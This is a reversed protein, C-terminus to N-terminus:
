RRRRGWATGPPHRGTRRRAERSPTRDQAAHLECRLRNECRPGADEQGAPHRSDPLAPIGPKEEIEGASQLGAWDFFYSWVRHYTVVERGRYPALREEWGKIKGSLRDAFAKANARYVGAGGADLRGLREALAEAVRVGNRPDLTYHPNGEPHIDGQARPFSALPCRLCGASRRRRMSSGRVERGSAPIGPGKSCCPFGASRWSWATTCWFVPGGPIEAFPLTQGSRLAPGPRGPGRYPRAGPGRRGSEPDRRLGPPHRRGQDSGRRSVRVVPGGGLDLDMCTTKAIDAGGM